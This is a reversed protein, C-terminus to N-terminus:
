AWESRKKGLASELGLKAKTVYNDRLECSLRRLMVRAETWTSAPEARATPALRSYTYRLRTVDRPAVQVAAVVDGESADYSVRKEDATVTELASPDCERRRVRFEEGHESANELDTETAYAEIEVRENGRACRLYSGRVVDGLSRWVPRIRSRNVGDIFQVLRECGDSCADHHIIMIAPKGLLADFAFNELGEWPYRRTFLPFNNYKMVAVDWVDRVTIPLPSLDASITDNNVAAILGSHKLATMASSSFVGQPFVMVPDHRIGTRKEHGAMRRSARATRMYLEDISGNGFEAKTHDCGHISLSFYNPNDLFLKTTRRSSRRWNWPIFAINTTFDHLKMLRLLETFDVFGHSRKLLPDDIILCAGTQASQWCEERLAWKIYLVVPVAAFVHQRVDFLGNPLEADIDVIEPHASICLPVNEYKALVCGSGGGFGLINSSNSADSHLLRRPPRGRNRIQIGCLQGCFEDNDAVHCAEERSDSGEVWALNLRTYLKRTASEDEGPYVFISHVSNSWAQKADPSQDLRAILELLADSSCFLSREGRASASSNAALLEASTARSWSVGFFELLRCINRGAPSAPKSSLIVARNM